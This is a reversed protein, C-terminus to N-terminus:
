WGNCNPVTYVLPSFNEINNLLQFTAVPLGPDNLYPIYSPYLFLTNGDSAQAHIVSRLVRYTLNVSVGNGTITSVVLPSFPRKPVQGILVRNLDNGIAVLYESCVFLCVYM